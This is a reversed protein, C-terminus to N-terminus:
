RSVDMRSLREEAAAAPDRGEITARVHTAVAEGLIPPVANGVQSYQPLSNKRRVGGTTRPGKFEFWDPFSQLRAMERVTPIRDRSYHVFDEPITTVTPAPQDPHLRQLTHKETRLHAPLDDATDGPDMAAFRKRVREGHNTSEHNYLQEDSDQRMLRQYNSHPDDMYERSIEDLGLYALDSIAEKVTVYPRTGSVSGLRQQGSDGIHTRRPRSVPLERYGIFFVRNRRQPVGFDAADLEMMRTNYGLERTESLVRNAYKGNEVQTVGSVNEIILAEPNLEELIELYSELLTNRADEGSAPNPGAISFGKCPPGGVLIDVDEVDFEGTEFLPTLDDALNVVDGCYFPHSLNATYTAGATEHYDTAALVEYGARELGLSFGGAGCFIDLCSPGTSM